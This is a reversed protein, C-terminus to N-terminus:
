SNNAVAEIRALLGDIQIEVRDGLDERSVLGQAVLRTLCDEFEAPTMGAVFALYEISPSTTRSPRRFDVVALVASLDAIATPGTFLAPLCRLLRKPVPVFGEELARLSWKATVTPPLLSPPVRRRRFSDM